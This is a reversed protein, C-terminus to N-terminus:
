KIGLEVQYSKLTELVNSKVNVFHTIGKSELEAKSAPDGAVVVIAKNGILEAIKPVAETYEDDSSCAVVIEAKAELATKVGEEITSFRNNDVTAFGACAFFNSAFQARARCMALNGFTLMFAVPQKAAKETKMRLEEFAQAGRYEKIPDAIKEMDTDNGRCCCSKDGSNALIKPDLKETFNPYQNTGLLIERRTAINMDRKKTTAAIAQQIFGGKFAELYGGKEEVEKFLKWAEQAISATLNEIYYSGAAPDIVRDFYSEEKLLSQLNRAIRDSFEAPKQFAADFPTVELSDVGALAASMAETTGRLMNVYPDYVTQNWQSTVACIHMKRACDRGTGYANVINAWLMRAARFKAIEMFYNSSVAFTFKIRGAIDDVKMGLETLKSLYENGMALAFALEQVITSGANHFIYGSVALTRFRPLEAAKEIISKAKEFMNVGKPFSGMLTVRRLPDYDVSACVDGAEWAEAKAMKSLHGIVESANAKVGSFNVEVYPAAIGKMLTNFDAESIGKKGDIKFNISNVGKMMIDLAKANAAKVDTTADVTQRVKWHNNTCVGRVFPFEGPAYKLHQLSQLNEIRYYPRVFFGEMTKWVLKKDYDAGKLDKTIVEEWRQTTVAPFETFLKEAM